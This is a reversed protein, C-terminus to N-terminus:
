DYSFSFGVVVYGGICTAVCGALDTVLGTMAVAGAKVHYTHAVCIVGGGVAFSVVNFPLTLM